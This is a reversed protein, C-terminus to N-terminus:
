GVGAPNAAEVGAAARDQHETLEVIELDCLGLRDQSGHARRELHIFSLMAPFLEAILGRGNLSNQMSLRRKSRGTAAVRAANRIRASGATMWASGAAVA